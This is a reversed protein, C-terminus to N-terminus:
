PKEWTLEIDIDTRLTIDASWLGNTMQGTPVASLLNAAKPLLVEIHVPNAFTGPQKQIYLQYSQIDGGMHDLVIEPPLDFAFQIEREDNLPVVLFTGYGQLGPPNEDFPGDNNLVDVLPLVVQHRYFWRPPTTHLSADRLQAGIPIYVRLYNWYCHEISDQYTDAPDFYYGHRCTDDGLTPNLYHATLVSQPAEPDSLDVQYSLETQIVVNVKNWGLNSDVVMWYDGQGARIAGDWGRAALLAGLAPDDMQLLIHREDLAKLMVKAAEGWTQFDGGGLLEEFLADALPAIFSKRDGDQRNQDKLVRMLSLVNKANVAKEMGEVELPGVATLLLRLAEQDIAIVGDVLQGSTYGNLHEAWMATTPFDPLWNVNRFVLRDEGMFKSMQWPSLAYFREQDHVDYSDQVSFDVMQGNEITITAAATIFGGTARIEDENQLLVLYAQPGYNVAGLARPLSMLAPLGDELFPLLPDIKELLPRTKQSLSGVEINARAALADAIAEQAVEFEPRADEILILAAPISTQIDGGQFVELLPLSAQYAEDGAIILGAAMDLLDGASALDGGYVPLWGLLRGAWRFPRGEDRLAMADARTTKLLPGVDDLLDLSIDNTLMGQFQDVDARFAQYLNFIRLTKWGLFLVLLLILGLWLQRSYRRYWLFIRPAAAPPEADTQAAREPHLVVSVENRQLSLRKESALFAEALRELGRMHWDSITSTPAAVIENGVLRYREQEIQSLEAGHGGFQFQLIVEDIRGWADLLRAPRVAGFEFPAFYLAGLIGFEGWQTDLRKGRKPPTRPMTAQFTASMAALLQVGPSKQRFDPHHEVFQRVHLSDVWAHQDLNSASTVQELIEKFEQVFDRNDTLRNESLIMRKRIYSTQLV